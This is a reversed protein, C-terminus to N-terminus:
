LDLNLFQQLEPFTEAFNQQRQKDLIKVYKKFKDIYESNDKSWLHFVIPHDGLKETLWQKAEKPLITISYHEPRTVIGLYPDPLREERCWLLFEPLQSITFVSVSHSISIQLNPLNLDQYRKINQYVDSWKAPWRSYEFVKGVGDVSIQIDVRKFKQWADLLETSPFITGNTTYHITEASISELFKLHIDSNSFFPEGGPIDLHILNQLEDKLVSMFEPDDYYKSHEFIKIEPILSILKKSESTWKSSSYSGCIRCALNCINGFPVSAVKISSLDPVTNKFIYENDLTRKSPLGANEDQWCRACGDNKKGDIFDQRLQKLRPHQKYESLNKGLVDSFKCCPKFDGQPSVDLGVWPHYCMNM